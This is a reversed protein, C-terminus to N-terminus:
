IRNVRIQFDAANDPTFQPLNPNTSGFGDGYHPHTQVVLAWGAVLNPDTLVFGSCPKPRTVWVLERPTCKFNLSPVVHTCKLPMGRVINPRLITKLNLNKVHWILVYVYIM